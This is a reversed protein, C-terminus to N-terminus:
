STVFAEGALMLRLMRLFDGGLNMAHVQLLRDAEEALGEQIAHLIQEHESVSLSIWDMQEFQSRRYVAVRKGIGFILKVLSDNRSAAYIAAHFAEDALQYGQADGQEACKRCTELATGIADLDQATYSKAALRGCAGELEAMVEFHEALERVSFRAVIAGKKPRIEVLGDASLQRLAERVPTRSTGYKEALGCEELRDGPQLKLSLIDQTILDRLRDTRLPSM